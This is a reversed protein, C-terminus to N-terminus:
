LPGYWDNINFPDTSGTLKSMLADALTETNLFAIPEQTAEGDEDQYYSMILWGDDFNQDEDLQKSYYSGPAIVPESV